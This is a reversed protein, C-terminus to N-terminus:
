GGNGLLFNLYDRAEQGEYRTVTVSSSEGTGEYRGTDDNYTYDSYITFTFNTGIVDGSENTVDDGRSREWYVGAEQNFYLKDDSYGEMFQMGLSHPDGKISSALDTFFGAIGLAGGVRGAVRSKGASRGKFKNKKVLSNSGRSPDISTEQGPRLHADNGGYTNTVRGQANYRNGNADEFHWHDQASWGKQGAVGRDYTLKNGYKDVWQTSGPAKHNPNKTWVKTDIEDPSNPVKLNEIPDTVAFGDLDIFHNPKNLAYTYPSWSNYKDAIGDVGGWRGIDAMYM